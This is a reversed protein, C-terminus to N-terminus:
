RLRRTRQTRRRRSTMNGTRTPLSGHGRRVTITPVPLRLNRLSASVATEVAVSVATVVTVSVATVVTVSVATVVTVSVATVVTVPVAATPVATM